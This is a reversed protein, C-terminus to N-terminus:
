LAALADAALAWAEAATPAEVNVFGCLPGDPLRIIVQVRPRGSPSVYASRGRNTGSRLSFAEVAGFKKIAAATVTAKTPTKTM